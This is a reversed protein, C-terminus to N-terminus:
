AVMLSRRRRLSIVGGVSLLIAISSPEPIATVTTTFGLDRLVAVDLETLTKRTGVTLTPDMVVEQLSGDALRISMVGEALHGGGNFLLDEGTGGNAAIGEAGLYDVANAAVLSDWTESVGFGVAHLLEHLAVSYFDNAGAQVATTHDFHWNADDDFVISGSHLGQEFSFDVGNFNDNITSIIPGSGRRQQENAEAVAVADPFSGNNADTGGASWGSASPGGQGLIPAPLNRAGAFIEVQGVPTQTFDITASNGDSPRSYVKSFNFTVSSGGSRGNIMEGDNFIETLQTFDIVANIDAAAAEIAAQATPNAAFFTDGTFNLVIDARSIGPMAFTTVMFTLLVLFRKM